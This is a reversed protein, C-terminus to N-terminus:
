RKQEKSQQLTPGTKKYKTTQMTRKDNITKEHKTTKTRKQHPIFTGIINQWQPKGHIYIKEHTFVKRM